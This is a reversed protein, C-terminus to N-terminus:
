STQSTTLTSYCPCTESGFELTAVQQDGGSAAAQRSVASILGATDVVVTHSHKVALIPEFNPFNADLQRFTSTAQPSSVRAVKKDWSVEVPSEKIIREFEAVPFTFEMEGFGADKRTAHFLRFKDTTELSLDGKSSVLRVAATPGKGAVKAITPLFPVFPELTFAAHDGSPELPKPFVDPNATTPFSYPFGDPYSVAIASKTSQVTVVTDPPLTAAYDHLTKVKLLVTGQEEIGSTHLRWSTYVESNKSSLLTVEDEAASILVNEYFQPAPVAPVGSLAFQLGRTLEGATTEFIM